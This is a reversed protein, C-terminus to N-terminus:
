GSRTPKTSTESHSIYQRMSSGNKRWYRVFASIRIAVQDTVYFGVSIIGLLKMYVYVYAQSISKM